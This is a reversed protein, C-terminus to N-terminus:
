RTSSAEPQQAMMERITARFADVSVPKSLVRATGPMRTGAGAGDRGAEDLAQFAYGTLFLVKLDPRSEWATEALQRGNLGPLGVDTVMLDVQASALRALAATGDAAEVTTYGDDELVEVLLMRVLEEDEVVLVTGGATVPGGACAPAPVATGADEPSVGDQDQDPCRCPLCLRVATGRGVTSDIRVFGGSQRAFGYLQSLGLGTGQGIPKTTFFPEFVHALVDPPMGVGSDRVTLVVYDGPLTEPEGALDAPGFHANATEVVLIGGDPMADRGNIVLNLLANEIQGVDAWVPRLGDELRRELRIAEGVSRSLLDWLGSVLANLDAREPKLPQRRAFALLRRTLTAARDVAGRATATFPAIDTRGAALRQEILELSSSIAQLLNNFDHAVGGTLQGVAEMKQSQALAQQAEELAQQAKRRETVDRTIKAFGRLTGAEDRIPQIVVHAWFRQGDQRMRWGEAEFKGESLATALARQPVGAARDEDTYFHSFHRGIIADAEYGKMRHAGPNWSSVRGEPDLMFIAYDVVGQVLLRFQEESRRLTEEALRRGTIDRTIMVFGQAFGQPSGAEGRVPEIVVHAWFRRGDQCLWWGEAEFKGESLATALARQPVGAARDEDPHFLSFHRGIIADAEYGTMRRAGPNWSSVIGQPDLLCIAYDRVSDVLMQFRLEGSPPETASGARKDTM